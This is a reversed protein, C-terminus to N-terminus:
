GKASLAQSILMTTDSSVLIVTSTSTACIRMALYVCLCRSGNCIMLVAFTGRSVQSAVSETAISASVATDCKTSTVLKPLVHIGPRETASQLAKLVDREHMFAEAARHKCLNFVQLAVQANFLCCSKSERLHLQIATM